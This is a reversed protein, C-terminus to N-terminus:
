RERPQERALLEHLWDFHADMAASAASVDRAELARLIDTHVQRTTEVDQELTVPLLTEHLVSTLMQSFFLLAPSQSATFLASHFKADAARLDQAASSERMMAVSAALAELHEATGHSCAEIAAQRELGHRVSVLSEFTMQHLMLGLFLMSGAQEPRLGVYFTGLREKRELVGFSELKAIRDRLTNRSIGVRETLERASPLRDGPQLEVLLEILSRFAPDPFVSPSLQADVLRRRSRAQELDSVAGLVESVQEASM